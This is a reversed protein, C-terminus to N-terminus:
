EAKEESAKSPAATQGLNVTIRTPAPKEEKKEPAKVDGGLARIADWAIAVISENMKARSSDRLNGAKSVSFLSIYPRIGLQIFMEEWLKIEEYTVVRDYNKGDAGKYPFALDEILKESFEVGEKEAAEVTALIHQRYHLLWLKAQNHAKESVVSDLSYIAVFKDHTEPLAKILELTAALANIRTADKTNENIVPDIIVPEDQNEISEAYFADQVVVIPGKAVVFFAQEVATTYKTRIVM